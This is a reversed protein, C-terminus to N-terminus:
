ANMRRRRAMFVFAVALFSMGITAPEPVSTDVLGQVSYNTVYNANHLAYYVTPDESYYESGQQASAGCSGLGDCIGIGDLATDEYLYYITSSQLDFTPNFVYEGGSV